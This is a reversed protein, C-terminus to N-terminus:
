RAPRTRRAAGPRAAALHTAPGRGQRPRARRARRTRRAAGRDFTRPASRRRGTRSAHRRGLGARTRTRRAPGTPTCRTRGHSALMVTRFRDIAAIEDASPVMDLAATAHAVSLAHTYYANARRQGDNADAKVLLDFMTSPTRCGHRRVASRTTPVCSRRAHPDDATHAQARTRRGVVELEQATHRGDADVVASVLNAAEITCEGRHDAGGSLEKLLYNMTEVFEDSKDEFAAPMATSRLDDRDTLSTGHGIRCGVPRRGSGPVHSSSVACKSDVTDRGIRSRIDVAIPTPSPSPKSNAPAGNDVISARKTLPRMYVRSTGSTPASEVRGAGGSLTSHSSVRRSGANRRRAFCDTAAMSSLNQICSNPRHSRSHFGSSRAVLRRSPSTTTPSSDSASRAACRSATHVARLLPRSGQMKPRCAESRAGIPRSRTAASSQPRSARATIAVSAPADGAVLAGARDKAAIRASSSRTPAVTVSM